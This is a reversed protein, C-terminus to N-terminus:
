EDWPGRAPQIAWVTLALEVTAMLAGSFTCRGCRVQHTVVGGHCFSQLGAEGQCKPCPPITRPLTQLSM